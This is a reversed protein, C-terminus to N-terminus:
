AAEPSTLESSEEAKTIESNQKVNEHDDCIAEKPLHPLNHKALIEQFKVRDEYTLIPYIERLVTILIHINSTNHIIEQYKLYSNIRKVVLDQMKDLREISLDTIEGREIQEKVAEMVARADVMMQVFAHMLDEEKQQIQEVEEFIRKSINMSIGQKIRSKMSKFGARKLASSVAAPSVGFHKAIENQPLDQEYLEKLTRIGIKRKQPM